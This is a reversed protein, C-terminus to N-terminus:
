EIIRMFYATKAADPEQTEFPVGGEVWEFDETLTGNSDAWVGNTVVRGSFTTGMGSDFESYWGNPSILNFDAENVKGGVGSNYNSQIQETSFVVGKYFTTQDIAFSPGRSAIPLYVSYDWLFNVAVWRTPDVANADEIGDVFFRLGASLNRDCTICVFHWKNDDIVSNSDIQISPSSPRYVFSFRMKNIGELNVFGLQADVNNAVGLCNAIYGTQENTGGATRKVWSCLSFNSLGFSIDNPTDLSGSFDDNSELYYNGAQATGALVLILFLILRKLIIEKEVFISCGTNTNNRQWL